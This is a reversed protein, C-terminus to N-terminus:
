FVGGNPLRAGNFYGAVPGMVGDSPCCVMEYNRRSAFLDDTHGYFPPASWTECHCFKLNPNASFLGRRAYGAMAGMKGASDGLQNPDAGMDVTYDPDPQYTMYTEYLLGTVGRAAKDAWWPIYDEIGWQQKNHPGGTSLFHMWVRMDTGRVLDCATNVCDDVVGDPWKNAELGVVIADVAKRSTLYAYAVPDMDFYFVYLGHARAKAAVAEVRDMSEDYRSILLHTYWVAYDALFRDIVDDPYKVLLPTYWMRMDFNTNQGIFQLWAFNCIPNVDQPAWGTMFTFADGRILDLDRAVPNTGPQTFWEPPLDYYVNGFGPDDPEKPGLPDRKADPPFRASPELEMPTDAEVDVHGYPMLTWRAAGQWADTRVTVTAGFPGNPWPADPMVVKCRTPNAPDREINGAVLRHDDTEICIPVPDDPVNPLWTSNWWRM